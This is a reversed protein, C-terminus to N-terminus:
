YNKFFHKWNLSKEKEYPIADLTEKTEKLYLLRIAAITSAAIAGGIIALTIPRKM